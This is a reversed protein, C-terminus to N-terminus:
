RQEMDSWIVRQMEKALTSADDSPSCKTKVHKLLPIIALATVEKEGSLADTLYSLPKLVAVIMEFVSFEIDSPM